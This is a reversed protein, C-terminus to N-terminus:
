LKIIRSIQRVVISYVLFHGIENEAKVRNRERETKRVM